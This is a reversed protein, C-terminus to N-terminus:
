QIIGDEYQSSDHVCVGAHETDAELLQRVSVPMCEHDHRFCLPVLRLEKGVPYNQMSKKDDASKKKMILKKQFIREPVTFLTNLDSGVLDLDLSNAFTILLHCM